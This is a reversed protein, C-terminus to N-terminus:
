EDAALRLEGLDGGLKGLVADHRKSPGGPTPFVRMARSAAPGSLVVDRVADPENVECARDLRGVHGTQQNTSHISTAAILQITHDLAQAVRLRYEQEIRALPQEGLHPAHDFLQDGATWAYPHQRRATLHEM